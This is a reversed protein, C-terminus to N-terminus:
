RTIRAKLAAQLEVRTMPGRLYSMACRPQM